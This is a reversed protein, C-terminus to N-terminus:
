ASSAIHEPAAFPDYRPGERRVMWYNVPIHLAYYTVYAIAAYIPDPDFVVYLAAMVGIQILGAISMVLTPRKVHGTHLFVPWIWLWCGTTAFLALTMVMTAPVSGAYDAASVWILLPELLVAEVAIIALTLGGMWVVFRRALARYRDWADLSLLELITPQYVTNMADYLLQFSDGLTRAFKYLGTVTDNTFLSVILVDGSRHIVKVYGLMNGYFLMNLNQRYDVLSLRIGATFVPLGEWATLIYLTVALTFILLVVTSAVNGVYYGDVGGIGLLLGLFVVAEVTQLVLRVAGFLYFRGVFRQL